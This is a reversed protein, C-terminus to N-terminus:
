AKAKKKKTQAKKAAIHAKTFTEGSRMAKRMDAMHKPTHHKSHEKLKDQQRKTITTTKM